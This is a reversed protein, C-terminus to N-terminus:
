KLSDIPISQEPRMPYKIKVKTASVKTATYSNHYFKSGVPLALIEDKTLNKSKSNAFAESLFEKFTKM